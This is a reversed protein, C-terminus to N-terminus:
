PLQQPQLSSIASKPLPSHWRRELVLVVGGYLSLATNLAHVAIAAALVISADAGVSSFFAVMAAERVGVGGISIPVISILTLTPLFAFFFVADVGAGLVDTALWYYAAIVLQTAVSLCLCLFLASRHTRYRHLVEAVRMIPALLKQPLCAQLLASAVAFIRPSWLVVAIALLFLAGGAALLAVLPPTRALVFPITLLGIIGLAALGLYRELLVSAVSIDGRRSDLFLWGAKVVDGGVSGPLFNNCFMGAMYINFLRLLSADFGQARLIIQWKWASLIQCVVYLCLAAGVFWLPLQLLAAVVQSPDAYYLLAGLLLAAAVMRILPRRASQRLIDVM